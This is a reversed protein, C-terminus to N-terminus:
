PKVARGAAFEEFSRTERPFGAFENFMVRSLWVGLLDREDEEPDDDELCRPDDVSM